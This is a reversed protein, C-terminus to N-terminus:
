NASAAQREQGARWRHDMLFILKDADLAIATQTAVDELTLNFVEGTPSYGLPSLLVVENRPAQGQDRDRGAQARQRHAAPGRRRDRRDAARHHLQRGRRPHRCEGHAFEGAGHLAAGRDGRARTGGGGERM